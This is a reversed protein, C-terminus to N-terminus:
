KPLVLGKNKHLRRRVWKGVKKSIKVGPGTSGGAEYWFGSFPEQHIRDGATDEGLKSQTPKMRWIVWDKEFDDEDSIRQLVKIKL